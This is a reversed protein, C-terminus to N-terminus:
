FLQSHLPNGVLQPYLSILSLYLLPYCLRLLVLFDGVFDAIDQIKGLQYNYGLIGAKSQEKLRLIDEVLKAGRNATLEGEM